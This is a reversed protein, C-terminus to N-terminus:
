AKAATYLAALDTDTDGVLAAIRLDARTDARANTYYLNTSGETVADTSGPSASIEAYASGGWRYTKNTDLAVYIIGTAGTAPFAAVNAYELVDDVFSPLQASAVKGTGDLGALGSAVNRLAALNGPSLTLDTASMALAESDTARESIGKVSTTADPVTGGAADATTKVENVAAVLSSKATTSLGTLDGTSSGTIWTRLQKYDTGLATILDGLRSILTM